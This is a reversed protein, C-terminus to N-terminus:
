ASEGSVTAQLLHVWNAEAALARSLCGPRAVVGVELGAVRLRRAAMAFIHDGSGIIV